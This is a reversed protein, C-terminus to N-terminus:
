YWGPNNEGFTKNNNRETQPISFAYYADVFIRQRGADIDVQTYTWNPATGTIRVGHGSKGDIFGDEGNALRWRRLDWYRFGEGALEVIREHRLLEMFEEKTSATRAPLNVNARDRVENLAALAGPIDDQEALAEAKNLLVEAYRITSWYQTTKSDNDLYSMDGDKLYKRFYYGTVTRGAASSEAFAKFGDPTAGDSTDLTRGNWQVGNYLITAYFRPDRGTYPAAGDVAWDFATGDAMEYEDALESTPVFAALPPRDPNDGPPRMRYDYDTGIFEAIFDVGFCIEANDVTTNFVDAYNDLLAGGATKTDNAAQVAVDWRKAYLAVRSLLAYASKKTARGINAADWSDPLDEAALELDNIIFDWCAELTARPKDNQEPGDVGGVADRIVVGLNEEESGYVRCLLWYTYARCFRVEALRTDIWDTGLKGRHAPADRLFENQRRIRDYHTQWCEFAGADSSNFATSQVLSKNYNQNYMDWSTSKMLDSYADSQMSERGYNYPEANDKFIAYFGIAYTDATKTTSWVTAPSAEDVPYLDMVDCSTGALIAVVSLLTVSLINKMNKM